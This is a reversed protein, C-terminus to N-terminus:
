RNAAQREHHRQRPLDPEQRRGEPRRARIRGSDLFTGEIRKRGASRRGSASQRANVPQVGDHLCGGAHFASRQCLGAFAGARAQEAMLTVVCNLTPNLRELRALYLETLQLSTVKRARLLASLRHEIPQGIVATVGPADALVRDSGGPNDRVEGSAADVIRVDIGRATRLSFALQRGDSSFSLDFPRGAKLATIARPAVNHADGLYIQASGARDSVFALQRGDASM